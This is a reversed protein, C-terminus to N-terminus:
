DILFQIGMVFENPGEQRLWRLQALTPVGVALHPLFVEVRLLSFIKWQQAAVFRFGGRSIDLVEGTVETNESLCNELGSFERAL